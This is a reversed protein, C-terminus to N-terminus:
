LKAHPESAVLTNIGLIYDGAWHGVLTWHFEGLGFCNGANNGVGDFVMAGYHLTRGWPDDVCYMTGVSGM